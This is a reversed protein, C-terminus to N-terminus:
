GLPNHLTLKLKQLRIYITSRTTIKKYLSKAPTKKSADTVLILSVDQISNTM